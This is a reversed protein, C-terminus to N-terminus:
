AVGVCLLWTNVDPTTTGSVCAVLLSQLSNVNHQRRVKTNTLLEDYIGDSKNNIRDIAMQVAPVARLAGQDVVFHGGSDQSFQTFLGGLSLVQGFAASLSYTIVLFCVFSLM